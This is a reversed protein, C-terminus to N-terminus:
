GGKEIENYDIKKKLALKQVAHAGCDGDKLVPDLPVICFFSGQRSAEGKLAHLKV